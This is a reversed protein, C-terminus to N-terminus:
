KKMNGNIDGYIEMEYYIEMSKKEESYNVQVGYIEMSKNQKKLTMLEM